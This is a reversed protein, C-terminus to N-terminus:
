LGDKQVYRRQMLKGGASSTTFCHIRSSYTALELAVVVAAGMGRVTRREIGRHDQAIFPMGFVHRAHAQLQGNRMLSRSLLLVRM